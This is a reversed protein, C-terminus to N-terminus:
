SPVVSGDSSLAITSGTTGCPRNFAPKLGSPSTPRTERPPPLPLWELITENMDHDDGAGNNEFWWTLWTLGM